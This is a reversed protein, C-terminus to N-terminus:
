SKQSQPSKVESVKEKAFRGVCSGSNHKVVPTLKSQPTKRDRLPINDKADDREDNRTQSLSKPPKYKHKPKINMNEDYMVEFNSSVHTNAAM